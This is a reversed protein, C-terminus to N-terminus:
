GVILGAAVIQFQTFLLIAAVRVADKDPGEAQAQFQKLAAEGFEKKILETDTTTRSREDSMAWGSPSQQLSFGLSALYSDLAGVHGDDAVRIGAEAFAKFARALTKTKQERSYNSYESFEKSGRGLLRAVYIQSVDDTPSREDSSSEGGSEYKKARKMDRQRKNWQKASMGPPIASPDSEPASDEAPKESSVDLLYVTYPCPFDIQDYMKRLAKILYRVRLPQPASNFEEASAVGFSTVIMKFNQQNEAALKDVEDPRAAVQTGVGFARGIAEGFPIGQLLTAAQTQWYSPKPTTPPPPEVEGRLTLAFGVVFRVNAATAEDAHNEIMASFKKQIPNLSSPHRVLFQQRVSEERAAFDVNDTRPTSQAHLSLSISVLALALLNSISRPV